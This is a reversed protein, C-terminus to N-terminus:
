DTKKKRGISCSRSVPLLHSGEEGDRWRQRQDWCGAWYIGANYVDGRSKFRNAEGVWPGYGTWKPLSWAIMMGERFDYESSYISKRITRLVANHCYAHVPISRYIDPPLATAITLISPHSVVGSVVGSSVRLVRWEHLWGQSPLSARLIARPFSSDLPNIETHQYSQDEYSHPLADRPLFCPAACLACYLPPTLPM